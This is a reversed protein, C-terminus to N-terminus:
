QVQEGEEPECQRMMLTFEDDSMELAPLDPQPADGLQLENVKAQHWTISYAPEGIHAAYLRLVSELKVAYRAVDRDAIEKFRRGKEVYIDKWYRAPFINRLAWDCLRQKLTSEDAYISTGKEVERLYSYISM